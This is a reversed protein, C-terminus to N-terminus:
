AVRLSLNGYACSLHWSFGDREFKQEVTAELSLQVMAGTVKSGFGKGTPPSVPPGGSELWSLHFMQDPADDTCRWKILVTGTDNSLAGYKAANTALEHIAMGLTQAHAADIKTEPGSLIIREGLLDAFHALQANFLDALAIDQWQSKVLVDQAASLAALRRGFSVSFEAPNGASTQRAIAQVLGLLNKSRHNVEKMLFAIQESSQESVDAARRSERTRANQVAVALTILMTLLGGAFLVIFHSNRGIEKEFTVSSQAMLRWTIGFLDLTRTSVYTPDHPDPDTALYLDLVDGNDAMEFLSVYKNPPGDSNTSQELITTMLERIRFVSVIFGRARDVAPLSPDLESDFIPLIVLVGAKVPDDANDDQVLTIRSTMNAQNNALAREIANRRNEESYIDFGIANRNPGEFPELYVIPVYIPRDGDPRVAFTPFDTGQILTEYAAREEAGQLLANYSVGLIGPYNKEIQLNEIYDAWIQRDVSELSQFLAGGGRLVQAYAEFTRLLNNEVASVEDEFRGLGFVYNRQREYFFAAITAALAVLFVVVVLFQERKKSSTSVNSRKSM